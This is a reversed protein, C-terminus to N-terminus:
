RVEMRVTKDRGIGSRDYLVVRRINDRCVSMPIFPDHVHVAGLGAHNLSDTTETLLQRNARNLVGTELHKSSQRRSAILSGTHYSTRNRHNQSKASAELDEVSNRSVTSTRGTVSRAIQARWAGSHGGPDALLFVVVHELQQVHEDMIGLHTM